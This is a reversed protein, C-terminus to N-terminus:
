ALRAAAEPLVRAEVQRARDLGRAYLEAFRERVDRALGLQFVRRQEDLLQGVLRPATGAASQARVADRLAPIEHAPVGERLQRLTAGHKARLHAPARRAAEFQCLRRLALAELVYREPQVGGHHAPADMAVLLGLTRRADGLWYHTWAMELLLGADDHALNRLAEYHVLADDFREQEYALRALSRTTEIAVDAPPESALLADMATISADVKGDALDRVALLYARRAAWPSDDPIQAFYEGAWADEGRRVLDLARHYAVFDAAEDPLVGFDDAALFAELWGDRDYHGALVLRQLGGIADPLLSVDRRARAIDRYILGAAWHLGLDEAAHALLRQARDYRPDDPDATKLHLWAGQAAREPQGHASAEVATPYAHDARVPLTGRCALLGALVIM